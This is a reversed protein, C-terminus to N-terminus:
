NRRQKQYLENDEEKLSAYRGDLETLQYKLLPKVSKVLKGKSFM